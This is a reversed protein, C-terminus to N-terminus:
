LENSQKTFDATQKYAEIAKSRGSVPKEAGKESLSLLQTIEDVMIVKAKKKAKESRNSQPLEQYEKTDIYKAHTTQIGQMKRAIKEILEKKKGYPINPNAKISKMQNMFQHTKEQLLREVDEKSKSEKLAKEYAKREKRIELAEKYLEPNKAKLYELEEETLVEGSKMKIDLAGIKNGESIKALDERMQDIEKQKPNKEAIQGNKTSSQLEKKLEFQKLQTRISGGRMFLDIRNM